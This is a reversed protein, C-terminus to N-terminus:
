EPGPHTSLLPPGQYGRTGNHLRIGRAQSGPPFLSTSNSMGPLCPFQLQFLARTPVLSNEKRKKKKKFIKIKEMIASKYHETLKRICLLTVWDCM